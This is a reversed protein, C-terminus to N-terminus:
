SIKCLVMVVSYSYLFCSPNKEDLGMETKMVAWPGRSFEEEESVQSSSVQNSRLRAVAGHAPTQPVSVVIDVLSRGSVQIPLAGAPGAFRRAKAPMMCSQPRQPTKNAASVLQVLHNTLVPTNLPRPTFTSSSDTTSSVSHFLSGRPQLPTRPTSAGRQCQPSVVPPKPTVPRPFRLVPTAPGRMHNANQM